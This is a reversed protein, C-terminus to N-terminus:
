MVQGIILRKPQLPNEFATRLSNQEIVERNRFVHLFHEYGLTQNTAPTITIDLDREAANAFDCPSREQLIRELNRVRLDGLAGSRAGVVLLRTTVSRARLVHARSLALTRLFEKDGGALCILNAAEAHSHADAGANQRVSATARRQAPRARHGCCRM